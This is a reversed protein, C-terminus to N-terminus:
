NSFDPLGESAQSEPQCIKTLIDEIEVFTKSNILIIRFDLSDLYAMRDINFKVRGYERKFNDNLFFAEREVETQAVLQYLQNDETEFYKELLQDTVDCSTLFEKTFKTNTDSKQLIIYCTPQEINKNVGFIENRKELEHKRAQIIDRITKQFIPDDFSFGIFLLHHKRVVQSLFDIITRTQYYAYQYESERFVFMGIGIQGHLYAITGEQFDMSNLTDPFYLLRPESNKHCKRYAKEIAFDYNTTIIRKFKEVLEYHLSVWNSTTPHMETMYDTYAALNNGSHVFIDESVKGWSRDFKDFQLHVNHPYGVRRAYGEVLQPWSPLGLSVSAGAGILPIISHATGNGNKRLENIVEDQTKGKNIPLSPM